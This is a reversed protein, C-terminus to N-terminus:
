QKDQYSLQYRRGGELETDSTRVRALLFSKVVFFRFPSLTRLSKALRVPGSLESFKIERNSTFEYVGFLVITDVLNM